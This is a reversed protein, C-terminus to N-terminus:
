RYSRQQNCIGHASRWNRADNIRGGAKREIIHDVTIEHRYEIPKGCIACIVPRGTKRSERWLRTKYNAKQRGERRWREQPPMAQWKQHLRWDMTRVASLSRGLRQAIEATSRKHVRMRVLAGIDRNSWPARPYLTVGLRKRALVVTSHSIGHRTAVRGGRDAALEGRRGEWQARNDSIRHMGLRSRLAKLVTGGIPLRLDSPKHRYTKLLAALAPTLVVRPGGGGPGRQVDDPWGLAIRIAHADALRYERVEYGQGDIDTEYGIIRAKRAM